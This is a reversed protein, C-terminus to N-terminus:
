DDNTKFNEFHKFRSKKKSNDIKEEDNIGELEYDETLQRKINEAKDRGQKQKKENTYDKIVNKIINSIDDQEDKVYPWGHILKPKM